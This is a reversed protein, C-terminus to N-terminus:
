AELRGFIHNGHQFTDTMLKMWKKPKATKPNYFHTITTEPLLTGSLLRSALMLCHAWEPSGDLAWQIVREQSPAAYQNPETAVEMIGRQKGLTTARNHITAAVFTRGM